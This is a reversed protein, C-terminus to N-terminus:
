ALILGCHSLSSLPSHSLTEQRNAQSSKEQYTEVKHRSLPM